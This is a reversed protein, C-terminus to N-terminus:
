QRGVLALAASPRSSCCGGVRRGLATRLPTWCLPRRWRASPRGGPTASGMRSGPLGPRRVRVVRGQVWGQVQWRYLISLGVLVKSALAADLPALRFGLPAVPRTSGATPAPIVVSAGGPPPPGRGRRGATGRRRPAAADYEAAKELCHGLEEARLWEDDASTHGRWRVLYRTCVRQENRNILLEVEHEGEQGPDSVHGPAPPADVREHFAKLRDVNVTQSSQMRPALALTYANPSPCATVTFGHFTWGM